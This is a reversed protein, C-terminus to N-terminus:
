CAYLNCRCNVCELHRVCWCLLDVERRCVLLVGVLGDDADWVEGCLFHVLHVLLEVRNCRGDLRLLCVLRDELFVGVTENEEGDLVMIYTVVRKVRELM